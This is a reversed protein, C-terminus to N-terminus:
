LKSLLEDIQIFYDLQNHVKRNSEDSNNQSINLLQEIENTFKEQFSKSLEGVKCEVFNELSPLQVQKSNLRDFDVVIPCHDSLDIWSNVDEFTIRYGNKLINSSAFCYDIHYPKEIKRYMFFSAMSETGQEENEQEHYLSVLSKDELYNVVDTHNAIRDKTDWIKNSNFDGILISDNELLSSYYNIALWIQGIYRAKDNEKNDMAWIAFLIFEDDGNSVKIPLVYRFKPNFWHLLELNYDSYSFVGLGKNPSESHWVFSNPKPTLKGFKLKEENECEPVILVDPKLALIRENKKRFAGQCNWEILRM